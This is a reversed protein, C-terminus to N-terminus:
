PGEDPRVTAGNVIDDGNSERRMLRAWRAPHARIPLTDRPTAHTHHGDLNAVRAHDRCPCRREDPPVATVAPANERLIAAM